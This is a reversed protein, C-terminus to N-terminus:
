RVKEENNNKESNQFIKLTDFFCRLIEEQGDGDVANSLAELHQTLNAFKIRNLFAM